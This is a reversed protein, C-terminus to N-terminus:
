WHPPRTNPVDPATQEELAVFRGALADLSKQLREIVTWQGAIEASLEAIVRDQEAAIRELQVLRSDTEDPM